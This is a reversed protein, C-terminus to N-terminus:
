PTNCQELSSSTARMGDTQLGGGGTVISADELIVTSSGECWVGISEGARGDGGTGGDGGAAGDGGAGGQQGGTAGLSGRGGMAGEGGQGGVAGAGAKGGRGVTVTSERLELTANYLTIGLSPAGSTGPGGGTGGCGGSAGGGGGGGQTGNPQGGGGGGGGGGHTGPDGATAPTGASWMGAELTWRTANMGDGGTIGMMGASGQSAIAGGQAGAAAPKGQTQPTGADGGRGGEGGDAEACSANQGAIGPAVRTGAGGPLGQQGAVGPLGGTGDAGDEGDPTQVTVRELIVLPSDKIHVGWGPQNPPASLHALDMHILSTALSLGEIRLVPGAGSATLRPRSATDAQFSDNFGGLLDVPRTLVLPGEIVPSGAILIAQIEEREAALALARTLTKVPAERSGQATDDGQETHVFMLGQTVEDCLYAPRTAGPLPECPADPDIGPPSFEPFNDHLTCSACWMMVSTFLLMSHTKTYPTM